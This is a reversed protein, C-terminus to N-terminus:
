SQQGTTIGAMASGLRDTTAEAVPLDTVIKGAFMVLVRDAVELIEELDHSAILVAAGQEACAILRERIAQAARLDLGQTPGYALVVRPTGSGPLGLGLERAVLLKQQNGGSLGSAPITANAPRVDFERMAAEHTRRQEARRPHRQARVGATHRYVDLNDGTSLNPVLSESREEPIWAVHGRLIDVAGAPSGDLLVQGTVPTVFGALVDMLLNQGSGAVGAIGTIEGARLAISVNTLQSDRAAAATVDVAQLVIEGIDRAARPAPEPLDGVMLQAIRRADLGRTPGSHVDVGHSLVTVDDAVDSVEDLRHTILVIGTGLACLARLHAFLGGVEVPGLSATPEDLILTRAGEALAVVIEGLQRHAQGLSSTPADIDVDVGALSLTKALLARAHSRRAIREPAVLLLNETLSLEGVLSLQQPVMNIGLARADARDNPAYPESDISMVAHDPQEIGALIKALTSKGAGNEGVIAHVRGPRVVIEVDDLATVTGFSKSVSRATLVRGTEILPTTSM